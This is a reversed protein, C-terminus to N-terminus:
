EREGSERLEQVRRGARIQDIRQRVSGYHLELRQWTRLDNPCNAELERSAWRMGQPDGLAALVDLAFIRLSVEDVEEPRAALMLPLAERVGELNGLERHLEVKRSLLDFRGPQLALSADIKRLDQTARDIERWRDEAARGDEERGLDYLVQMWLYWARNDFPELTILKEAHPFAKASEGGDFYIRGIWYHSESVEAGRKLLGEFIRLADAEEGLRLRALALGRQVAGDEPRLAYLKLYHDRAREYFGLSYYCHGLALTRYLLKPTAEILREYVEAADGYRRLRFYTLGLMSLAEPLDPETELAAFLIELVRPYRKALYDERVRVLEEAIERKVGYLALDSAAGYDSWRGAEARPLETPLRGLIAPLESREQARNPLSLLACVIAVVVGKM